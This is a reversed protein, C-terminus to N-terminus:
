GLARLIGASDFPWCLRVGEADASGQIQLVPILDAYKDLLAPDEAIDVVRVSHGAVEPM